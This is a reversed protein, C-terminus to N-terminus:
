NFLHRLWRCQHWQQLQGRTNKNQHTIMHLQRGHYYTSFSIFTAHTHAQKFPECLNTRINM